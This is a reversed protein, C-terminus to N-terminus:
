QIEKRWYDLLGSLTEDLGIEPQWGVDTKILSGDGVILPTDNPRFREADVRVQVPVRCLASLHDLLERMRYARGSCVNYIRGARGQEVIDRYARVTDRVDTVDRAAELNGVAIVPAMRGAEILAIQRAFGSAAFTPSQRPGIHNFSRTIFIQQGDEDGGRVGLMEQALKSLAYPSAPGLRDTEKLARDSPRYVLSSGPILVRARVGTTRLADLLHHTGLVNAALTERTDNWSQGVHAAGACHFVTSPRLRAIGASVAAADLLDVDARRWGVVPTNSQNLLDVLHSGAFGAAGTVLVTV